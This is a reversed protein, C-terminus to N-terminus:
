FGMTYNLTVDGDNSISLAPIFGSNDPFFLVADLINLTWVGAGIYFVTRRDNESKYAIRQKDDLIDKLRNMEDISGANYYQRAAIDYDARDDQYRQDALYLGAASIATGLLYMGGRLSNGSYRQGWGPIFVSRLGAKLATKQSLKIKINNGVGPTFNFEGKWNEYGPMTIEAKYWGSLNPPLVAPTNVVLDYEGKLYATAGSPDTTILYTGASQAGQQAFSDGSLIIPATLSILAFRLVRM